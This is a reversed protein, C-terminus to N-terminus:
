LSQAQQNFLPYQTTAFNAVVASQDVALTDKHFVLTEIFNGWRDLAEKRQPLMENKNYTAMIKPMKHGLCKEVVVPDVQLSEGLQTAFTRRLDHPTWQEIGLREQLRNVAKPLARDSLASQGDIGCVVYDSHYTNKLELLINQTLACLHIRMVTKTKTHAAPITWLSNQFDFESWKAERIEGTRVGTLLIIKIANKIQISVNHKDSDLFVWLAKIEDVSLYRERPKEIGGIDRSRINVAPNQPMVGRSVGYNFAQKLAALVKNAHVSAGRMVIKDLAQTIERTKLKDLLKNGLLPIIDAKILQQIQDPRTRHKIIYNDYWSLVLNEVTNQEQYQEEQIHDKPNCGGKRIDSLEVFRKKADSLSMAPYYGITIFHRQDNIKYRYMWTKVSKPTVRIGFGGDRFEEYRVSKPKLSKIYTDTFNKQM